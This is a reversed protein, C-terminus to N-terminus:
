TKRPSALKYRPSIPTILLPYKPLPFLRPNPLPEDAHSVSYCLRRFFTTSCLFIESETGFLVFGVPLTERGFEGRSSKEGYVIKYHRSSSQEVKPNRTWSTSPRSSVDPDGPIKYWIRPLYCRYFILENSELIWLILHSLTYWMNHRFIGNRYTYTVRTSIYPSLYIRFM